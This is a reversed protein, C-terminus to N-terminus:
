PRSNWSWGSPRHLHVKAGLLLVMCGVMPGELAMGKFFLSTFSLNFIWKFLFTSLYLIFFCFFAYILLSLYPIHFLGHTFIFLCFFFFFFVFATELSSFIFNLIQIVLLILPLTLWGANNIFSYYWSFKSLFILYPVPSLYYYFCWFSIFVLWCSDRRVVLRKSAM